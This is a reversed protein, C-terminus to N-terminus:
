IDGMDAFSYYEEKPSIILHDLISIDLYKAAKILRKTVEHDSISPQLAGSPHNHALIISSALCKLGVILILKVDVVTGVTGGKSAYFTGIIRNARNLYLVHMEEYVSITDNNFQRRLIEFVQKSTTVKVDDVITSKKYTIEIAPAKYETEKLEIQQKRKAMINFLFLRM